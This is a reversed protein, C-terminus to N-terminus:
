LLIVRKHDNEEFPFKSKRYILTKKNHRNECQLLLNFGLTFKELAKEFLFSFFFLQSIRWIQLSFFTV